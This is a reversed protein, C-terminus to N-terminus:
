VVHSRKLCIHKDAMTGNNKKYTKSVEGHLPPEVLKKKTFSLIKNWKQLSSGTLALDSNGDGHRDAQVM